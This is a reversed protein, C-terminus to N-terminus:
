THQESNVTGIKLKVKLSSNTQKHKRNQMVPLALVNRLLQQTLTETLM